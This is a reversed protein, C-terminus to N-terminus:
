FGGRGPGGMGGGPGGPGGMSPKFEKKPPPKTYGLERPNDFRDENPPLVFEEVMPVDTDYTKTHECGVLGAGGLLGVAWSLTIHRM